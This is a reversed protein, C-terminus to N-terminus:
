RGRFPVPSIPPDITRAWGQRMPSCPPRTCWVGRGDGSRLHLAEAYFQPASRRCWTSLYGHRRLQWVRRQGCLRAGGHDQQRGPAVGSLDARPLPPYLEGGAGGALRQLDGDITTHVLGRGSPRRRPPLCRRRWRRSTVAPWCRSSAGEQWVQEGSVRRVLRQMVKTVPPAPRSPIGTRGTAAPAQPLVALLAAEAYTLKAASKGLYAFSQPRCRLIAALRRRNLYVTLLTRKSMTGSWSCRVRWRACSAPCHEQPLARYSAGGAHHPDLRRCPGGM